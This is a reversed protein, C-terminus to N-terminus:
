TPLSAIFWSAEEPWRGDSPTFWRLPARGDGVPNVVRDVRLDGIFQQLREGVDM